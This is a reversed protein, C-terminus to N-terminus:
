QKMVKITKVKNDATVKVMYTGNSLNSMDIQSQNGNVTKVIIQQGLLNYVAVNTINKSYSLNLVDKVPNPYYTFTSNDFTANALAVDIVINDVFLFYQDAISYANFGFYYDGSVAPTFTLSENTLTGGTISAHDAITNTMSAANASTGYAVKLSEVYTTSNNGYDYAISYTTGGTLTLPQTYYWANAANASNYGYRLANTTFGSGPNSATTWNNGTGANEIASCM